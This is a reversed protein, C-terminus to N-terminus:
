GNPVLRVSGNGGSSAKEKRNLAGVIDATVYVLAAVIGCWLLIKRVM